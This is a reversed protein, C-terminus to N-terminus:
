INKGSYSSSKYSQIRSLLSGEEPNDVRCAGGTDAQPRISEVRQATPQPEPASEVVPQVAVPEPEPVSESIAPEPEEVVPEEIVPEEVVPVPEPIPEPEPESVISEPEAVEPEPVEEAQPLAPREEVPPISNYNEVEYETVMDESSTEGKIEDRLMTYEKIKKNSELIINYQDMIMSKDFSQGNLLQETVIKGIEMSAKDINRKEDRIKMEYKEVDIKKGVTDSVDDVTSKVKDFFGM